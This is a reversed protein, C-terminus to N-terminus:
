MLKAINDYSRKIDGVIGNLTHRIYGASGMAIGSITVGRHIEGNEDTIELRRVGLAELAETSSDGAYFYGRKLPHLTTGLEELHPTLVQQITTAIHDPEAAVLTM